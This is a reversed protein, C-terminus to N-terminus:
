RSLKFIHLKGDAIKKYGDIGFESKAQEVRKKSDLWYDNIVFYGIDVGAMDMARILRNKTPEEYVMDLYIKYFPSTTPIPYYFLDGDETSFYKKFGNEQLAAASVAQNALVIYDKGESDKEIWSVASIDYKSTAYARSKAFADIRPYMSYLSGTSYLAIFFVIALIITKRSKLATEVSKIIAFLIAPVLFLFAIQFFRSIFEELEYSVIPIPLNVLAIADISIIICSVILSKATSKDIKAIFWIGFSAMIVMIPIYNASFLEVTHLTSQFPIWQYIDSFLQKLNLAGDISIASSQNAQIKGGAFFMLPLAAASLISFISYIANKNKIEIKDIQVLSLYILAPIGSFPHIFFATVGLFWLFINLKKRTNPSISLIIISLLFLNGLNQPVSFFFPLSLIPFATLSILISKYSFGFRKYVYIATAPILISSLAPVLLRDATRIAMGSIETVWTIFSYQGIYLFPKPNITGTIALLKESAQHVFPDFGFNIGYVFIIVSYSLFLHISVLIIDCNSKALNGDADPKTKTFFYRVKNLANEMLNSTNDTKKTKRLAIISILLASALFYLVFFLPQVVEWPSQIAEMTKSNSLIKFALAIVFLYVAILILKCNSFGPKEKELLGFSVRKDNNEPSFLLMIIPILITLTMVVETNLRWIYFFVSGSFMFLAVVAFLGFAFRVYLTEDKAIIAGARMALLAIYAFTLVAGITVNGFLWVNLIM